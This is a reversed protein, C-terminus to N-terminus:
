PLFTMEFGEASEPYVGLSIKRLDRANQEPHRANARGKALKAAQRSIFGFGSLSQRTCLMDQAVDFPACLVGLDKQPTRKHM